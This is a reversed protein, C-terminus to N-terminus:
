QYRLPSYSITLIQLVTHSAKLYKSQIEGYMGNNDIFYNENKVFDLLFDLCTRLVLLCMTRSLDGLQICVRKLKQLLLYNTSLAFLRIFKRLNNSIQYLNDCIYKRKSTLQEVYQHTLEYKCVIPLPLPLLESFLSLGCLYNQPSDFTYKLLEKFMNTYPTTMTSVNLGSINQRIPTMQAFLAFVDLLDKKLQQTDKNSQTM